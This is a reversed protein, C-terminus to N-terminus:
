PPSEYLLTHSERSAALTGTGSREDRGIELITPKEKVPERFTLARIYVLAFQPSQLLFRLLPQREIVPSDSDSQECTLDHLNAIAVL